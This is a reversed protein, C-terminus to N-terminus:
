KKVDSIEVSDLERGLNDVKFEKSFKRGTSGSSYTLTVKAFHEGQPLRWEPIRHGLGFRLYGWASFGYCDPDDNYKVILGFSEPDDSPYLDISESIPILFDNPTETNESKITGDKCWKVPVRQYVFPQSGRDWKGSIGFKETGGLDHFNIRIRCNFAPSRGSNKVRLHYYARRGSKQKM